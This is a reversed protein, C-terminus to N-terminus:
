WFGHLLSWPTDGLKCFAHPKEPAAQACWCAAPKGSSCLHVSSAANVGAAVARRGHAHAATPPPLRPVCGLQREDGARQVHRHGDDHDGHGPGGLLVALPVQVAADGHEDGADREQAGGSWADGAGHPRCWQARRMQCSAPPQQKLVSQNSPLHHLLTKGM